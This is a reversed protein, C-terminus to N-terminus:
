LDLLAEMHQLQLRALDAMGAQRVQWRQHIVQAAVQRVVTRQLQIAVGQCVLVQRQDQGQAPGVADLHEVAQVAVAGLDAQQVLVVRQPALM